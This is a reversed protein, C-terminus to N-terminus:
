QPWILEEGTICNYKNKYSLEIAGVQIAQAIFVSPICEKSHEKVLNELQLNICDVWALEGELLILMQFECVMATHSVNHRYYTGEYEKIM